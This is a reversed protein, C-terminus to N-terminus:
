DGPHAILTKGFGIGPDAIIHAKAIGRAGLTEYYSLWRELTAGFAGTDASPPLLMWREAYAM